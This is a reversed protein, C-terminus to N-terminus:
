EVILKKITIVENNVIVNGFYIGKSLDSINMKQNTKNFLKITKVQNGLIDMVILNAPENLYYNFNVTEKAPNPYFDTIILPNTESILTAAAHYTIYICSRDLPDVDPFFCYEVIAQADNDCYADFYGGFSVNDAQGSLLTLHSSSITAGAPYCNGGWCFYNAAGSSESIVNKECLIDHEKNSTNKITLYSHTQLCPDLTDLGLTTISNYMISNSGTITLSQAHLLMAQFIM